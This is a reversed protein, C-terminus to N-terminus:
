SLRFSRNKFNTKNYYKTTTQKLRLLEQMNENLFEIYKIDKTEMYKDLNVKMQKEILQINRMDKKLFELYIYNIM